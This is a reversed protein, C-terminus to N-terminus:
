VLAVVEVATPQPYSAPDLDAVRAPVQRIEIPCNLDDVYVVTARHNIPTEGAIWALASVQIVDGAEIATKPECGVVLEGERGFRVCAVGRTSRTHNIIEVREFEAITAAWCVRPGLLITGANVTIGERQVGTVRIRPITARVFLHWAKSDNM